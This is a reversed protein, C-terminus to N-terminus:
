NKLKLKELIKADVWFINVDDYKDTPKVKGVNRNFFLYKGDPSVRAGNESASTNIENGLNIANGWTGDEQKFSVYIDANGFGEEKRGDWLIYSEDPAIFPHANARGSNIQEGFLKPQERNGNKITSYRIKGEDMSDFVYTGLSSSSLQMILIDNLLPSLNKLKSWSGNKTREKFNRGLYMKQGDPSITPQGVRPSIISDIWTNKKYKYVLFKMTKQDQNDEIERILYFEKLDPTFVGDIEWNETSILGPAFTKPTLGPPEEGFYANKFSGSDKGKANSDKYNCSNLIVFLGILYFCINKRM